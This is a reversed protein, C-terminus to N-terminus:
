CLHASTVAQFFKDIRATHHAAQLLSVTLPRPLYTIPSAPLDIAITFPAPPVPTRRTPQIPITNLCERFGFGLSQIYADFSDTAGAHRSDQGRSPDAALLKYVRQNMEFWVIYM